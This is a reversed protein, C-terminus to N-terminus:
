PWVVFTAFPSRPRQGLLADRWAKRTQTARGLRRPAHNFRWVRLKREVGQPPGQAHWGLIGTHRLVLARKRDAHRTLGPRQGPTSGRLARRLRRASGPASRPLKKDDIASCARLPCFDSRGVRARTPQRLWDRSGSLRCAPSVARVKTRPPRRHAGHRTQRPNAPARPM